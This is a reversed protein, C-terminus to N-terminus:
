YLDTCCLLAVYKEHARREDKCIADHPAKHDPTLGPVKMGFTEIETATPPGHGGSMSCVNTPKSSLTMGKGCYFCPPNGM